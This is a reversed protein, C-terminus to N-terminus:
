GQEDVDVVASLEIAEGPSLHTVKGGPTVVQTGNPTIVVNTVGAPATPLDAVVQSPGPQPRPAPPEDLPLVYAAELVKPTNARRADLVPVAPLRRPPKPLEPPSGVAQVSGGPATGDLELLEGVCLKVLRFMRQCASQLSYLTSANQLDHDLAPVETRVAELIRARYKGM